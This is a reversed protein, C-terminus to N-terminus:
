ARVERLVVSLLWRAETGTVDAALAATDVDAAGVLHRREIRPDDRVSSKEAFHALVTEPLHVIAAGAESIRRWLNWDGPEGLLWAHPDFRMHALRQTHLVAGHTIRGMALPESGVFFWHGDPHECLAQGYAMDANSRRLADLLRAIHDTTFADDHDLPALYAGRCEARAANAAPTGATLWFSYPHDPYGPRETLAIFRVRPDGIAEVRARAEDDPGDSSVVVEVNAYSGNLVSYIARTVLLKGGRWTHIPVSVLPEAGEPDVPGSTLLHRDIIAQLEDVIAKAARAHAVIAAPDQTATLPRNGLAQALGSSEIRTGGREGHAAVLAGDGRGGLRLEATALLRQAVELPLDSGQLVLDRTATGTPAALFASVARLWSHPNRWTVALVLRERSAAAVHRGPTTQNRPGLDRRGDHGPVILRRCGTCQWADALAELPSGCGTCRLADLVSPLSREPKVIADSRVDRELAFGERIPEGFDGARFVARWDARHDRSEASARTALTPTIDGLVALISLLGNVAPLPRVVFGDAAAAWSAVEAASPLGYQAHEDMWQPVPEGSREAAGRLLVDTPAAADSPCVVIVRRASVRALEGVFREREGPPVHELTDISLVTDFSRDAFPLAGPPVVLALMSPAVAGEFAIDLGVFPYDPWVISLGHSGSGVDLVSGVEGERELLDAVPAYRVLWNLM